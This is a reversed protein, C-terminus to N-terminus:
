FPRPVIPKPDPALKGAEREYGDALRLLAEREKGDCRAAARRCRQAEGLLYM